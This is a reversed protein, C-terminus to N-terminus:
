RWVADPIRAGMVIARLQPVQDSTVIHPHEPTPGVSWRLCADRRALMFAAAVRVLIGPRIGFAQVAPAHDYRHPIVRPDDCRAFVPSVDHERLALLTEGSTDVRGASLDARISELPHHEALAIMDLVDDLAVARSADGDGSVVVEDPSATWVALWAGDTAVARLRGDVVRLLVARLAPRSGYVDAAEAVSRLCRYLYSGPMSVAVSM